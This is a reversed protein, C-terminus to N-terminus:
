AGHFLQDAAQSANVVNWGPYATTELLSHTVQGGNMMLYDIQGTASNQTIFDSTGDHNVDAVGKAAWYHGPL